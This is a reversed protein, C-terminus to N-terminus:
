WCKEGFTFAKRSPSKSNMPSTKKEVRPQSIRTSAKSFVPPPSTVDMRCIGSNMGMINKPKQMATKARVRSM